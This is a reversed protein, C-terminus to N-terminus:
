AAMKLIARVDDPRIDGREGLATQGAVELHHVVDDAVVRIPATLRAGADVELADGNVVELRGPYAAAIEELAPICRADKEVALVM